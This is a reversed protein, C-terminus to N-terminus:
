YVKCKYVWMYLELSPQIGLKQEQVSCDPLFFPPPDGGSTSNNSRSSQGPQLLTTKPQSHPDSERSRGVATKDALMHAM